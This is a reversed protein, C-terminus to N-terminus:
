WRETRVGPEGRQLQTSARDLWSSGGHFKASADSQLRL